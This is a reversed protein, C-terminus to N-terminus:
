GRAAPLTVEVSTGTALSELAALAVSQAAYAAGLGPEFPREGRAAALVGELLETHGKGARRESRTRESGGAHSTLSAFDDLVWARGGGLVEVREKPLSSDGVGPYHVTAVSGNEYQVTVSTSEPTRLDTPAPLAAAHVRAPVGCLWNAFDFMHCAEGLLRGGGQEPDNLWDDHPLPANVRYVLHLPGAQARVQEGLKQALPAFPRNFGIALRDNGAGAAWVDDIQERTLGLPKEVFVAKGARLAAAAIEAHTDHRTGILVLDIEPDEVAIRWDTATDAGGVLRAVDGATTGSRTVVTKVRVDKAAKLNPVHVNSVFGGAGVIAVTLAGTAPRVGTGSSGRVVERQSEAAGEYTLVAALPPSDGAIAEYAESVRDVPLMM